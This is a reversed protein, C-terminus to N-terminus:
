DFDPSLSTTVLAKKQAATIATSGDTTGSIASARGELRTKFNNMITKMQVMTPQGGINQFDSFKTFEVIQIDERLGFLAALSAPMNKEDSAVGNNNTSDWDHRTNNVGNGGNDDSDLWNLLAPVALTDRTYTLSGGAAVVNATWTVAVVMPIPWYVATGGQTRFSFMSNSASSGKMNDITSECTSNGGCFGSKMATAMADIESSSSAANTIFSSFASEMATNIASQASSIDGASPMNSEDQFLAEFAKFANEMATFLTNAASTYRSIQTSSAGLTTLAATYKKLAKEARIKQMASGMEADVASRFAAPLSSWSSDDDVADGAAMLALEVYDENFGADTASHVFIQMLLGAAKGRNQAAAADTTADVADKYLSTFENLRSVISSKFTTMQSSSVGLNTLENEFGNVAARSATAVRALDTSSLSGTRLIVMGFAVMIPNDSGATQMASILAEAQGETVNSIGLNVTAGATPTPILSRRATTGDPNKVTVVLFNYSTRDPIGAISFSIKGNSDAEASTTLGSLDVIAGNSGIADIEITYTTGATLAYGNSVSLIIMSISVLISFIKKM